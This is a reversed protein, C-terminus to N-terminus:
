GEDGRSFFRFQLLTAIVIVAFYVYSM